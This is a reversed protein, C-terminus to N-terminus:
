SAGALLRTNFPQTTAAKTAPALIGFILLLVAVLGGVWSLSRRLRMASNEKTFAPPPSRQSEPIRSTSEYPQHHNSVEGRDLM